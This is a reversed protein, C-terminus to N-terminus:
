ASSEREKKPTMSMMNLLHQMPTICDKNWRDADLGFRDLDEKAVMAYEKLPWNDFGVSTNARLRGAAETRQSGAFTDSSGDDYDSAQLATAIAKRM